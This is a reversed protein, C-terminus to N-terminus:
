KLVTFNIGGSKGCVYDMPPMDQRIISTCILPQHLAFQGCTFVDGEQLKSNISKMVGWKENGYYKITIMRDPQWTVMIETNVEISDCTLIKYGLVFHSTDDICGSDKLSNEFESINAFGIFKCLVNLTSKSQGFGKDQEQYGWFRRLTTASLMEHTHQFIFNQLANFDNRSNLPFGVFQEIRQRLENYLNASM